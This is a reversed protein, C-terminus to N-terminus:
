IPCRVAQEVQQVYFDYLQHHLQEPLSALESVVTNSLVQAASSAGPIITSVAPHDLIWRMAFQAMTYSGPKFKSLAEVLELGKSFEIGSFTEGVSFANGDKNYNRHDSEAFTTDRSFKGSLLGSALPLRVIIGIQKEMALDFLSQRANQRFLNFIIQLSALDDHQACLLAEDIREVSAGFHAIHGEQQVERLWDFIAGYAIVETPICHLQLLDITDRRLRDQARKVADRLDALSYGDPYSGEGRGYKTAICIDSGCASLLQGLYSESKGAGYVDATDFFNIGEALAAELIQQASSDSLPGFDGGLQWCGLGVEGIEMGSNGLLRKKM